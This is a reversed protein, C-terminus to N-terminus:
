IYMRNYIYAQRTIIVFDEGPEQDWIISVTMLSVIQGARGNLGVLTLQMGNQTLKLKWFVWRQLPLLMLQLSKIQMKVNSLQQLIM